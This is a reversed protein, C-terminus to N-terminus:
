HNKILADLEEKDEDSIKEEITLPALKQQASFKSKVSDKVKPVSNDFIKKSYIKTNSVSRELFNETMEQASMTIPSIVQYISNFIPKGDVSISLFCLFTSLIGFTKLISRM